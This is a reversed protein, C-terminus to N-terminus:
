PLGLSDLRAPSYFVAGGGPALVQFPAVERAFIPALRDFDFVRHLNWATQLIGGPNNLIQDQWQPAVYTGIDERFASMLSTAAVFGRSFSGDGAGLRLEIADQLCRDAALRWHRADSNRFDGRLAVAFAVCMGIGSAIDKDSHPLRRLGDWLRALRESLRSPFGPDLDGGDALDISWGVLKDRVEPIGM